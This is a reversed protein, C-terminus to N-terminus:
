DGQKNQHLCHWIPFIESQESLDIKNISLRHLAIAWLQLEKLNVPRKRVKEDFGQTWKNTGYTDISPNFVHTWMDYIQM